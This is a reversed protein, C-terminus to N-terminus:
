GGASRLVGFSVLIGNERIEWAGPMMEPKEIVPIGTLSGIAGSWPFQPGAEPAALRLSAAVAPHCHLERLPMRPLNRMAEAISAYDTM